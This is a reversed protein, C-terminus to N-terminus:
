GNAVVAMVLAIVGLVVVVVGWVVGAAQEDFKEEARRHM